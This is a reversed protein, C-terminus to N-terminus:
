QEEREEDYHNEREGEVGGGFFGAADGASEDPGGQEEGGYDWQVLGPSALKAIINEVGIADGGRRGVRHEEGLAEGVEDEDGNQLEQHRREEYDEIAQSRDARHPLQ